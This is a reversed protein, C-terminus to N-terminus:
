SLDIIGRKTQTYESIEHAVAQPIILNEVVKRLLELQGIRAFAILPTANSIIM